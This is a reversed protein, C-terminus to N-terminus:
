NFFVFVGKEEPDNLIESNYLYVKDNFNKIGLIAVPNTYDGYFFSFDASSDVTSFTSNWVLSKEFNRLFLICSNETTDLIEDIGLNKFDFESTLDSLTFLYLIKNKQESTFEPSLVIKTATEQIFFNKTNTTQSQLLVLSCFFFFLSLVNKMSFNM